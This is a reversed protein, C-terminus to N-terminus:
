SVLMIFSRRCSFLDHATYTYQLFRVQRGARALLTFKNDKAPVQTVLDLLNTWTQSLNM